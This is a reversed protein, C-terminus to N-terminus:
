NTLIIKGIHVSSEIREHAKRVESMPLTSDVTAKLQGSEVMPWIDDTVGAVIAAKGRPGDIPRGRLSTAAYTIRKGLMKGIKLEATNGGQLGITVIRGDPAAADINRDLYKAGMIDLIVDAGRGGTLDRTREVFDETKYNIAKAGLKECYEAKEDNGVTVIVDNGKTLAMQIAMTGIGSSGGHVLVAEGAAARGPSFPAWLNSWITCIVEVLAAGEAMSLGQPLPLVQVAPVNVREAYGGGALLACVEDGVKWDTVESGIEIITGAAELGIIDTIGKPPPYHGQRQMTDARNVGAAAIQIIVEDPACTPDPAEAWTLADLGGPENVIVAKM